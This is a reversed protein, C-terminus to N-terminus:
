QKGGRLALVLHLTAGGTLAYDDATKDDARPNDCPSQDARMDAALDQDKERRRWSTTRQGRCPDHHARQAAVRCLALQIHLNRPACAPSRKTTSM